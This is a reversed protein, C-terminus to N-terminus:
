YFLFKFFPLEFDQFVLIRISYNDILHLHLHTYIDHIYHIYIYIIMNEFLVYITSTEKGM